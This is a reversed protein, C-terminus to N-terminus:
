QITVTLLLPQESLPLKNALDWFFVKATFTGALNPLWGVIATGSAGAGLTIRGYALGVPVNNADYFVIIIDTTVPRSTDANSVPIQILTPQGVKPSVENGMIDLFKIAAPAGPKIPTATVFGFQLEKTFTAPKGTASLADTYSITIKDGDSLFLMGTKYLAIPVRFVGTSVGTEVALLTVGVPDTTSTITVQVYDRRDLNRNADPDEVYIWITDGELYYPKSPEVYIRGDWTRVAITYLLVKRSGDEASPDVLRMVITDPSTVELKDPYMPGTGTMKTISVKAYFLTPDDKSKELEYIYLEDGTTSKLVITGYYEDELVFDPDKYYVYVEAYPGTMNIPNGESDGIWAKGTTPTVKVVYGVDKYDEKVPTTSETFRDFYVVYIYYPLNYPSIDPFNDKNIVIEGVFVGTNEGTEILDLINEGVWVWVTDNLNSDLNADPEILTITITDNIKVNVSPLGMITGAVPKDINLVATSPHVTATIKTGNYYAIIQADTWTFIPYGMSEARSLDVEFTYVHKTSEDTNLFVTVGDFIYIGLKAETTTINLVVGDWRILALWFLSPDVGTPDTVTATINFVGQNPLPYLNRDLSVGMPLEKVIKVDYTV